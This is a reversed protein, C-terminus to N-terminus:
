SKYGIHITAVDEILNIVKTNILGNEKLMDNIEDPSFYTQISEGLYKYSDEDNAVLKGLKPIVNLTYMKFLNSYFNNRPKKFDLIVFRGGPKLINYINVLAKKHDTFNRFGFAVTILDYNKNKPKYNEVSKIEFNIKSFGKNLLKQKCFEIMEQNPDLCTLKISPNKQIIGLSIDGTGCAIDLADDVSSLDCIRLFQRKWGRHLGFSMLDNMIDYKSSVSTFINNVMEPKSSSNIEKYGFKTKTM